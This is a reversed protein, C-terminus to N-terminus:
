PVPVLLNIIIILILLVTVGIFKAKVKKDKLIFIMLGSIIGSIFGLLMSYTIPLSEVMLHEELPLRLGYFPIFFYAGILAYELNNVEAKKEKIENM